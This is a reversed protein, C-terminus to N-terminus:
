LSLSLAVVLGLLLNGLMLAGMIMFVALLVMSWCLSPLFSIGQSFAQVQLHHCHERTLDTAWAIAVIAFIIHCSGLM